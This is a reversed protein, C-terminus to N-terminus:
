LFLTPDHPSSKNSEPHNVHCYLESNRLHRPIEQYYSRKTFVNRLVTRIGSGYSHLGRGGMM